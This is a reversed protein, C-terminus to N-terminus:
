LGPQLSREREAWLVVRQLRLVWRALCYKRLLCRRSLLSRRWVLQLEPRQIGLRQEDVCWAGVGGWLRDGRYGRSRSFQIWSDRVSHWVGRDPQIGPCLRGAPQNASYRHITQPSEAPGGYDAPGVKLNGAAKAQARLTQVATMVQAQQTHYAEGLSSTWALNQAMKDLVTPFQTLAKVSPDWTEKDVASVLASGTLAKNTQLWNDAIAVQDPFTSASLIQAVLADPYLAIPAVLGQLEAATLPVGARAAYDSTASAPPPTTQAYLLLAPTSRRTTSRRGVLPACLAASLIKKGLMVNM